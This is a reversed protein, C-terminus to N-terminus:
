APQLRNHNIFINGNIKMIQNLVIGICKDAAKQITPTLGETFTEINRVEIGYVFIKEPMPINLTSAFRIATAFNVDHFSVMRISHLLSEHNLVHIYGEPKENTNIADIVIANKYNQLVDIIRFGGWSVYEFCTGEKVPCKKELEQAVYIGVGDDGLLTNGMGLVVLNKDM